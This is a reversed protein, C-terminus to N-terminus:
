SPERRPVSYAMELAREARLRVSSYHNAIATDLAGNLLDLARGRDAAEDRNLLMRGWLLKTQALFFRANAQECMAASQAFYADAEAYRGLLTALGGLYHCIPNAGTAGNDSWQDAWPALQEIMPDAFDPNGLEIAADAYFVMGTVWVPNMELEFNDTAFVELRRRAADTDGIEMDAIALAGSLVGGLSPAGTAMDEMLTSLESLTGRQYHIMMLQGGYIFTADPQGSESGIQLAENAYREATETDGAIIALWALGFTHVWTLVPQNLRDVLARMTETCPRMENFRGAQACAQRRWNAAFFELVPDGLEHARALGEATRALSEELTPPAMLAYALNNLVRVTVADDGVASAIALAEDALAQRRELSRGVVIELCYTALILARSPDDSPVRALAAEFIEIRETDIAGFNSFLGRHTALAAAVLRPTDDVEVAQHAAQFLTARFMPDGVQRQATGLGIALDIALLPDQADDQAYLELAKAYHRLADSPALAALATDGAERSYRIAKPVAGAGSANTWHRALEGVRDGPQGLGLEELAVAIERHALARRTPGLDQYLTHQILAHTFQYQGPAGAERVLAATRARDLANIAEDDPANAARALLELDFERGIVSALRLLREAQDGLRVVRGGIVDRVSQPLLGGALTGDTSWHGSADQYIAGTEVLHRLVQNVFFPNGDTERYVAYGLNTERVGLPHGALGEMLQIVGADDLGHLELRSVPAHRRIEALTELLAPASALETDRFIAVVLVRADIANACLYRLLILSAKDGWHVDDLMLLIPQENSAASLLGVVAAFVLFRETEADTTTAAPLTPIRLALAPTLRVLASGFVEVHERLQTVDAHQIYHGLAEVFLQYPNALDEECHGFLVCAGRDFAARAAEGALTTKGQGAEGSILLVELGQRSAVRAFAEDILALETKYGIFGGGPQSALRGPLPIPAAKPADGPAPQSRPPDAVPEWPVRFATVPDLGKLAVEGVPDFVHGGRSGAMLRALNSVMISGPEAVGELRVAEVIPTGHWDNALYRVDGASVGIRLVLHENPPAVRNRLDTAQQMEVAANLADSAADFIAQLGDGTGKVVSGYHHAVAQRLIEDLVVALADASDDGLSARQATSGVLDCVLITATAVRGEEV